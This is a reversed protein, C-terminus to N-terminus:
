IASLNECRFEGERSDIKITEKRTGDHLLYNTNRCFNYKCKCFDELPYVTDFIIITNLTFQLKAFYILKFWVICLNSIM